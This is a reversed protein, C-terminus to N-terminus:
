SVGKTEKPILSPMQRLIERIVKVSVTIMKLGAAEKQQQTDSVHIEGAWAVFGGETDCVGITRCFSDREVGIM